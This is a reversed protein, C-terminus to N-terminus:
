CLDSSGSFGYLLAAGLPLLGPQLRRAPSVEPSAEQSLLRRRCALGTSSSVATLSSRPGRVDHHPDNAAVFILMGFLSFLALPFVESTAFGARTARQKRRPGPRPREMSLSRTPPSAALASRCPRAGSCASSSCPPRCPLAGSRRHRAVARAHRGQAPRGLRVAGRPGRRDHRPHSALQAGYRTSRPVVAEVLVGILAGGVVVLMPAIAAYDVMVAELRGSGRRVDSPVGANTPAPDSAGVIDMTQKVAPNALDLVPKPLVRPVPFEGIIPIVVAQERWSRTWHRRGTPSTRSPVPSSASTGSCSALAGRARHGPDRDRRGAQNVQFTGALVLFESVFSSLGPLALSSLGAVLFTGALVPTVRQWGRTTRSGSRGRRAILSARSCSSGATLLRPQGHLAGFRCWRDLHARLHGARHLRLPQDLHLRDPADHGDPWHRAPCRLARLHGGARHHGADSVREGGPLALAFRIMRLHRGQGPDGVLLVATVLDLRPRPTRCGTHVPWMPATSPLPSSSPSSCGASRRRPVASMASSSRSSSATLAVPASPRLPRHRRRAHDPWRRPQLPHVEDAAYQRRPGGFLASSSLVGPHAHGRLLRLLPSSTRRRSSVVM